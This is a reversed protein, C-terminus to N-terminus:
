SAGVSHPSSGPTHRRSLLESILGRTAHLARSPFELCTDIQYSRHQGRLCWECFHECNNTLLRYNDEGVRSRARRVVELGEFRPLVSSVVGVPYGAAFGSLSVQEVPGRRLGRSLGAYHVVKGAGVYIGHHTYGHRRSVIHAGLPPEPEAVVPSRTGGESQRAANLNTRNQTEPRLGHEEAPLAISQRIVDGSPEVASADSDTLM